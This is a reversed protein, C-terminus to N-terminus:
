FFLKRKLSERLPRCIGIIILMMGIIFLASLPYLSWVFMRHGSFTVCVLMETLVSVAGFLICAGGYIFLEGGKTYRQLAVVATIILMISAVLPLAFSLFWNGGTSYNLYFLFLAISAFDIPVFIVPNPKKFWIPLVAIIYLLLIAGSAYGSWGLEGNIKFDCILCLLFPLLFIITLVFLFGSKSIGESVAGPYPPYPSPTIERQEGPCIVETNCLPCKKESDALEVGCKVCYM